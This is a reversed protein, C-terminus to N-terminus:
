VAGEGRHTQSGRTLGWVLLPCLIVPILDGYVRHEVVNGFLFVGALYFPIIVLTRRLAPPFSRALPWTLLWLFGVASLLYPYLSGDGFRSLNDQWHTTSGDYQNWELWRPGAQAKFWWALAAKTVCWLVGTALMHVLLSRRLGDLVYALSLLPLLFLTTERNITAFLFVPYWFRWLSRQWLALLVAFFVVSPIDWPFWVTYPQPIIFVFPVVFYVAFAAYAASASAVFPRLCARFAYYLAVFSGWELCAVASNLSLGANVGLRLMLPSLCRYCFPRPATGALLKDLHAFPLQVAVALHYHM